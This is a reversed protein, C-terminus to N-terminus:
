QVLQMELALDRKAPDVVSTIYCVVEDDKSAIPVVPAARTLASGSESSAVTTAVSVSHASALMPNDSTHVSRTHATTRAAFSRGPVCITCTHRGGLTAVCSACHAHHRLSCSFAPTSLAGKCVSCAPRAATRDADRYNRTATAQVSERSRNLRKLAAQVESQLDADSMNALGRELVSREPNDQRLSGNITTRTEDVQSRSLSGTGSTSFLSTDM